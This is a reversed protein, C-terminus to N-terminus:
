LERQFPGLGKNCDMETSIMGRGVKAKEVGECTNLM